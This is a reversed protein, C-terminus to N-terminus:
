RVGMAALYMVFLWYLDITVIHEIRSFCSDAFLLGALLFVMTNGVFEIAEWVTHVIEKSVFRPWAFYAITFGSSVLSLIGSTSLENEALFFCLYSCSITIIVQVLADSHGRELACCSIVWLAFTAVFWGLIFSVLTM